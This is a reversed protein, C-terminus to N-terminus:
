KGHVAVGDHSPGRDVDETLTEMPQENQEDERPDVNPRSGPQAGGSGTTEVQAIPPAQRNASGGSANTTAAASAAAREANQHQAREEANDKATIFATVIGAIFLMAISAMLVAFVSASDENQRKWADHLWRMRKRQPDPTFQDSPRDNM